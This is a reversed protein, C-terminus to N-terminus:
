IGLENFLAVLKPSSPRPANADVINGNPDILIFRPITNVQYAQQFSYDKGSWLQVGKMAREKVFNRWKKNAKEWSGGNRNAGDTSISVFAINKNHYEKELRELNPIEAICPRCWTAWIDIYVYKGKFSDLSKKGGKYDEYDVFKPSLNGKALKLFSKAAAHQSDYNEELSNFFATNQKKVQNYLTSDINNAALMNDSTEKLSAVKKEFDQKELIFIDKPDGIKEVFQIHNLIFISNQAGEGSYVFTETFNEIDGKVYIDFGNELFVIARKKPHTSFIYVAGKDVKLTDKFTGDDNIAITKVVGSKNSVTVLSDTNNELKGALTLYTKPHENQCALCLFVISIAFGLKKM